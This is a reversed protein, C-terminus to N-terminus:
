GELMELLYGALITRLTMSGAVMWGVLFVLNDLNTSAFTIAVLGFVTFTAIVCVERTLVRPFRRLQDQKGM